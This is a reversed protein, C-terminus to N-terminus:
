KRTQTSKERGRTREILRFTPRFYFGSQKSSRIAVVKKEGRDVNHGVVLSHIDLLAVKSATARGSSSTRATILQKDIM